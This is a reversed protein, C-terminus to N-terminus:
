TLFPLNQLEPLEELQNNGAAIFELSPPLDPLKKLSNNDVDIIKLFSSNQLEPLKELQNNSVGLYELLPPLDSLAKLNNNDVLLSKLSQPLEPLETLSNCSAVLSELHPPLEPLSSLGLNNLELEHAQRDLCDRLRSVAMERQEGNGPPANREWESWANYYETKSKVNEAEVPMETLNSSHRLPEQLFTNSVNRPNIFMNFAKRFINKNDLKESCVFVYM